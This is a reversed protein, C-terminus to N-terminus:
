SFILTGYMDKYNIEKTTLGMGLTLLMGKTGISWIVEAQM